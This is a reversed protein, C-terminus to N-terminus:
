SVLVEVEVENAWGPRLGMEKWAREVDVELVRTGKGVGVTGVPVVRERILVMVHEEVAGEGWQELSSIYVGMVGLAKLTVAIKLQGNAAMITSPTGVVAAAGTMKHLLGLVAVDTGEQQENEGDGGALGTSGALTFTRVPFATLITWGKEELALNVMAFGQGPMM